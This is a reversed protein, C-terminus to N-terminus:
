NHKPRLKLKQLLNGVEMNDPALEAARMLDSEALDFDKRHLYILGRNYWATALNPNLGVAMTLAREAEASKGVQILSLGLDRWAAASGPELNVSTQLHRLAGRYNEELLLAHGLVAEIRGDKIGKAGLIDRAKKLDRLGWDEKGKEVFVLGRARYAYCKDIDWRLLVGAGNVVQGAWFDKEAPDVATDYKTMALSVYASRSGTVYYRGFALWVPMLVDGSSNDLRYANRKALCTKDDVPVAAGSKDFWRRAENWHGLYEAVLGMERYCEAVHDGTPKMEGFISFAAGWKYRSRDLAALIWKADTNKADIHEIEDVIELVNASYGLSALLLGRIQRVSASGPEIRTASQSWRLGKDWEGQDYHVWARLLAQGLTTEKKIRSIKEASHGKGDDLHELAAMANDLCSDVRHYDGVWRWIHALQMWTDQNDPANAAANSLATVLVDSRDAKDAQKIFVEARARRNAKKPETLAQFEALTLSGEVVIDAPDRPISCAVDGTSACGSILVFLSLFSAALLFSWWKKFTTSNEQIREEHIFSQTM